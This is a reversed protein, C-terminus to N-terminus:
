FALGLVKFNNDEKPNYYIISNDNTNDVKMYKDVEEIKTIKAM